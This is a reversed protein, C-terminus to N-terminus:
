IIVISALITRGSILYFFGGFVIWPRVHENKQCFADLSPITGNEDGFDPVYFNFGIYFALLVTMFVFYASLHCIHRKFEFRHFRWMLMSIIMFLMVFVIM